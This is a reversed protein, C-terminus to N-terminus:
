RGRRGGPDKQESVLKQFSELRAASVEGSAVAAQVACGPEARHACDRFRCAEALAEIDHFSEKVAAEAAWPLFERVGPSDIILGGGGRRGEADPLAILARETTTHRGREDKDRVEGIARLEESLLRNALTSKGVGSSGLLLATKGHGLRLRLEDLGLGSKASTLLIETDLEALMRRPADTDPTLDTKTVVILAEARGARAAGVFRELRRVNLDEGIATLVLVLDANAAVVQPIPRRGAAQRLLETRRDLRRVITPAPEARFVVFDGVVPKDLQRERKSRQWFRGETEAELAGAETVLVYRDRHEVAVRAVREEPRVQAQFFPSFGLTLLDLGSLRELAM